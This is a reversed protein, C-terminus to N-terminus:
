QDLVFSFPSIELDGQKLLIQFNVEKMPLKPAAMSQAHYTVDSDM